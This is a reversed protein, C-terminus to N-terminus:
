LFLRGIIIKRIKDIGDPRWNQPYVHQFVPVPWFSYEGHCGDDALHHHGASYLDGGMVLGDSHAPWENNEQGCFGDPQRWHHFYFPYTGAQFWRSEM